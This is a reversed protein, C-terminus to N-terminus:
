SGTTTEAIQNSRFSVPREFICAPLTQPNRFVNPAKKQAETTVSNMWAELERLFQVFDDRFQELDNIYYDRLMEQKFPTKELERQAKMVYYRNFEGAICTFEHCRQMFEPLSAPLRKLHQGYCFIWTGIYDFGIIM